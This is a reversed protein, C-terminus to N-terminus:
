GACMRRGVAVLREVRAEQDLQGATARRGALPAEAEETGLGVGAVWEAVTEAM